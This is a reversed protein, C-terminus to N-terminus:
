QVTGDQFGLKKTIDKTKATRSKLDGFLSELQLDIHETNESPLGEVAERFDKTMFLVQLVSNLYYTSGQNELGHYKIAPPSRM